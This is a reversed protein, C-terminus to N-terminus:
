QHLYTYEVNKVVCNPACLTRGKISLDLLVKQKCMQEIKNNSTHDFSRHILAWDLEHHSPFHVNLLLSM